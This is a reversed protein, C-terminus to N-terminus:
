DAHGGSTIVNALAVETARLQGADPPHFGIVGLAQLLRLFLFGDEAVRVDSGERPSEMCSGAFLASELTAIIVPAECPM